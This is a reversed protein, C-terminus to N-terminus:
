KITVKYRSFYISFLGVVFLIAGPAANTLKSTVGPGVKTVWDIDGAIGKLFLLIGGAICIIGIVGGLLSIRYQQKVIAAVVDPNKKAFDKDITVEEVHVQRQPKNEDSSM